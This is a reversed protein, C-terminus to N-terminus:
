VELGGARAGEAIAKVRGAYRYGGRDFVVKVIKKAKAKEALLQGVKESKEVKLFDSKKESKTNKLEQDSAAVLTKGIQDDILQVVIHKNSRFVSLRPRSATGFLGARIKLHRREQKEKKTKFRKIKM